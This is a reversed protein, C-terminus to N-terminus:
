KKILKGSRVVQGNQMRVIYVGTALNSVSVTGDANAVHKVMQGNTNYIWAKDVNVFTVNDSTVAPYFSMNSTNANNIVVDEVGSTSGEADGADRYNLYCPQPERPTNDGIIKVPIDLAYGKNFGGSANLGGGFWADCAVIRLRSDGPAADAPVNITFEAGQTVFLARDLTIANNEKIGAGYNNTGFTWLVEDSGAESNFVHDIDWDIWAKFLCYRIDDEGNHGRVKVTVTEGQKLTLVDDAMVYNTNGDAPGGKGDNATEDWEGAPTTCTYNINGTAGTTIVEEIWRNTIAAKLGDSTPDIYSAAYLDIKLEPLLSPNEYRDIPIWVTRSCTKLDTSVACVGIYPNEFKELDLNGIYASWTTTRGVEYAKGEPGNKVLIEFHDINVEDNFVMGRDKLSTTYGADDVSWNLKVSLSKATEEKVEAILSEAVVSAPTAKLSGDELKIEGLYLKYDEPAGAIRVGIHKIVDGSNLGAVSLQKEQWARGNADGFPAEVWSGDAKQLIVSLHSAGTAAAMNKVAVTATVPGNVKLNTKYIVLDTGAAAGTLKLSSGGIWAEEHSFRVDLADTSNVKLDGNKVKLWRYTPVYDQQAMNYWSGHTKKGKYFYIDGNGLTFNTAFPLSGQVASREPAMSAFGGFAAMQKDVDQLMVQFNNGTNVIEPRDLVNRRGGGMTRDQLIQYNEQANMQSTGVTFQFFRSVSHEGWLCMGMEKTTSLNMAKWNRDMGVIWVGQYVDEASGMAAKAATLSSAVGSWAFDGGSYNLFADHVKGVTVGNIVKNNDGLLQYANSATISHTNTYAGIHFSDFGIEKARKYLASHFLILNDNPVGQEFNYNIGDQGLFLLCNLMADLYKYTCDTNKATIMNTYATQNGSAHDFFEIGSHFYTGNKHAAAAWSGPAQMFGHNWSGFIHTYNWMSYVDSHFEASPYGGTIKMSGTPLNMWIRRQPAVDSILNTEASQEIIPNYRTHSRVFELDLYIGAAEFEAQTPYARGEDAAKVFLDLIARNEWPKFDYVTKSASPIDQAFAPTFSCAMASLCAAVILTSKKM